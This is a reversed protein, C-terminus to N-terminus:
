DVPGCNPRCDDEGRAVGRPVLEPFGFFRGIPSVAPVPSVVVGSSDFWSGGIMDCVFGAGGARSFEM